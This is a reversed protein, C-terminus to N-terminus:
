GVISTEAGRGVSKAALRGRKWIVSVPPRMPVYFLTRAGWASQFGITQGQNCDVPDKFSDFTGSPPQDVLRYMTVGPLMSRAFRLRDPLPFPLGHRTRAANFRARASM